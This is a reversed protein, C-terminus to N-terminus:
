SLATKWLIFNFQNSYIQIPNFQNDRHCLEIKVILVHQTCKKKFYCYNNAM